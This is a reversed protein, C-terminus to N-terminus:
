HAKFRSSVTIFLILRTRAAHAIIDSPARMAVQCPQIVDATARRSGLRNGLSSRQNNLATQDAPSEPFRPSAFAPPV